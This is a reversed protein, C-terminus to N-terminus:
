SAVKERTRFLPVQGKLAQTAEHLAAHAEENDAAADLFELVLHAEARTLDSISNLVARMDHWQQIIALTAYHRDGGRYGFEGLVTNLAKCQGGDSEGGTKTISEKAWELPPIGVPVGFVDITTSVESDSPIPAPGRSEEQGGTFDAKEWMGPLDSDDLDEAPISNHGLIDTNKPDDGPLEAIFSPENSTDIAPMDVLGSSDAPYTAAVEAKAEKGNERVCDHCYVNGAMEVGGGFVPEECRFCTVAPEAQAEGAPNPVIRAGTAPEAVPAWRGGVYDLRGAIIEAGQATTLVVGPCERPLSRANTSGGCVECVDALGAPFTHERTETPKAYPLDLPALITAPKAGQRQYCPFCRWPGDAPGGFVINPDDAKTKGCDICAKPEPAAVPQLRDVASAAENPTEAVKGNEVSPVTEISAPPAPKEERKKLCDACQCGEVHDGYTDADDHFMDYCDGCRCFEPHGAAPTESWAGSKRLTEPRLELTDAAPDYEASPDACDPCKCDPRHGASRAKSQGDIEAETKNLPETVAEVKPDSVIVPEDDFVSADGISPAARSIVPTKPQEHRAKLMATILTAARDATGLLGGLVEDSAGAPLGRFTIEISSSQIGSMYERVNVDVTPQTM